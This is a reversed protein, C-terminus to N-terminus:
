EEELGTVDVVVRGDPRNVVTEDVVTSPSILLENRRVPETRRENVPTDPASYLRLFDVNMQDADWDPRPTIAGNIIVQRGVMKDLDFRSSTLLYMVVGGKVLRYAPRGGFSGVFEVFGSANGGLSGPAYRQRYNENVVPAARRYRESDAPRSSLSQLQRNTDADIQQLNQNLEDLIANLSRENKLQNQELAKQRRIKELVPDVEGKIAELSADRSSRGTRSTASTTSTTATSAVIDGTEPVSGKEYSVYKHFVYARASAPPRIKAFQSRTGTVIVTEDPALTGVQTSGNWPRSYIKGGKAVVAVGEAPIEAPLAGDLNALAVYCSESEPYAIQIWEGNRKFVTVPTDAPATLVIEYKTGEGARINVRGGLVRGSVGGEATAVPAPATYPVPTVPEVVPAATAAPTPAGSAAPLPPLAAPDPFSPLPPLSSEPAAGDGGGSMAPAAPLPPLELEEAACVMGTSLVTLTLVIKCVPRM